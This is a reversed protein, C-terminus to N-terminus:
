VKYACTKSSVAAFKTILKSATENKMLDIVTKNKESLYHDKEEEKMIVRHRMDKKLIKNLLKLFIM